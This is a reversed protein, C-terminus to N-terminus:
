NSPIKFGGKVLREWVRTPDYEQQMCRLLEVNEEGYSAIPDQKDWAYNLYRGGNARAECRLLSSVDV